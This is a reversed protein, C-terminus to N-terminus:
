DGFTKSIWSEGQGIKMTVGTAYINNTVVGSAKYPTAPLILVTNIRVTEGAVVTGSAYTSSLKTNLRGTNGAVTTGSISTTGKAVPTTVTGASIVDNAAYVNDAYLLVAEGGAGGAQNMKSLRRIHLRFRGM